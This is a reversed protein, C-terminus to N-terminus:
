FRCGTAEQSGSVAQHNGRRPAEPGSPWFRTRSRVVKLSRRLAGLSGGKVTVVRQLLPAGGGRLLPGSKTKMSNSFSGTALVPLIQSDTMLGWSGIPSYVWIYIYIYIYIDKLFGILDKLSRILDKLFGREKLSRILDKLFGKLDKHFGM